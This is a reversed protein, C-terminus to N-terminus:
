TQGPAAILAAGFAALALGVPSLWLTFILAGGVVVLLAGALAEVLRVLDHALLSHSAGTNAAHKGAAARRRLLGAIVPTSSISAMIM